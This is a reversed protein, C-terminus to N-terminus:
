LGGHPPALPYSRGFGTGEVLWISGVVGDTGACRPYVLTSRGWGALCRLHPIRWLCLDPGPDWQRRNVLALGVEVARRVGESGWQGPPRSVFGRLAGTTGSADCLAM